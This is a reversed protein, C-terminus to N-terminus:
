RRYGLTQRPASLLKAQAQVASEVFARSGELRTTLYEVYAARNAEATDFPPQTGEPADMLLADPVADVIHTLMATDLRPTLRADAAQLDSALPLLVHNQIPAFPTHMRAEDVGAWDHHFYLSAGHDILFPEDGWLLINPNRATRDINTIFADFWVIDAALDPDVFPVSAVPDYNLAGELFWLGVNLGRSAKLIDQIEPDRETRGFSEDLDVLALEPVPLGLHLGIQGAILEAILARAGQGAGRFKVVYLSEDEVEVIAPLSGGERLPVAYRIASFTSLSM